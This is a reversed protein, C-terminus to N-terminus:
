RLEAVSGHVGNTVPFTIFYIGERAVPQHVAMLLFSLLLSYYICTNAGILGASFKM